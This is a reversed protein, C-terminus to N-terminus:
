KMYYLIKSHWPPHLLNGLLMKPSPPYKNRPHNALDSQGWDDIIFLRNAVPSSGM